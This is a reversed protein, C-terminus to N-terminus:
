VQFRSTGPYLAKTVVLQHQERHYWLLEVGQSHKYMYIALLDAEQWNHKNVINTEHTTVHPYCLPHQWGAEWVFKLWIERAVYMCVYM